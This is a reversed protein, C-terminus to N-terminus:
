AYKSLCRSSCSCFREIKTIKKTAFYHGQCGAQHVYSGTKRRYSPKVEADEFLLWFQKVIESWSRCGYKSSWVIKIPVQISTEQFPYGSVTTNSSISSLGLIWVSTFMYYRLLHLIMCATSIDICMTFMTWIMAPQLSLCSLYLMKNFIRRASARLM